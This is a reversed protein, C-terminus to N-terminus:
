PKGKILQLAAAPLAAAPLAPMRGAELNTAVGSLLCSAQAGLWGSADAALPRGEWLENALYARM